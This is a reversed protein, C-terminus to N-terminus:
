PCQSKAQAFAEETVCGGTVNWVGKEDGGCKTFAPCKAAGYAIPVFAGTLPVDAKADVAPADENGGEEFGGEPRGGEAGSGGEPSDANVNGNGTGSCGVWAATTSVIALVCVCALKSM